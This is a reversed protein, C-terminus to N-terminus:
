NFHHFWSVPLEAADARSRSTLGPISGLHVHGDILGPVLYLGRGVITGMAAVSKRMATSRGSLSAIRGNDIVVTADELARSREPSVVTVHEIRLEQDSARAPNIAIGLCLSILSLNGARGKRTRIVPNPRVSSLVPLARPGEVRSGERGRVDHSVCPLLVPTQKRELWSFCNAVRSQIESWLGDNFVFRTM